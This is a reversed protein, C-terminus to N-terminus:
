SGSPIQALLGDITTPAGSRVFPVERRRSLGFVDGRRLENVYRGYAKTRMCDGGGGRQGTVPNYTNPGYKFCIRNEALMIPGGTSEVRYEKGKNVSWTGEVIGKNGPYWLYIKGDPSSYSVQSGHGMMYTIRTADSYLARTEEVPPDSMVDLPPRVGNCASVGTAVAFFVAAKSWGWM